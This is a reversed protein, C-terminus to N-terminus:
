VPIKKLSSKALTDGFDSSFAHFLSHCLYIPHPGGSHWFCVSLSEPCGLSPWIWNSLYHGCFQVSEQYTLSCIHQWPWFLSQSSRPVHLCTLRLDTGAFFNFNHYFILSTSVKFFYPRSQYSRNPLIWCSKQFDQKELSAFNKFHTVFM